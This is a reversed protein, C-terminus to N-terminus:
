LSSLARIGSRHPSHHLRLYTYNRQPPGYAFLDIASTCAQVVQHNSLVCLSIPGPRRGGHMVASHLEPDMDPLEVNWVHVWQFDESYVLVFPYDEILRDITHVSKLGFKHSEFIDSGNLESQVDLREDVVVIRRIHNDWIYLYFPRHPTSM